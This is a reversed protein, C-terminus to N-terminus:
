ARIKLANLLGHKQVHLCPIPLCTDQSWDWYPLGLNTDALWPELLEELQVMYLRHWPLFDPSPMSVNHPCCGWIKTPCPRSSCALRSRPDGCTKGDGYGHFSAIDQFNVWPSKSGIANRLATQLKHEEYPTLSNVNKRIWIKKCRPAQLPPSTVPAQLPPSPPVLGDEGGIISGIIAIIHELINQSSTFNILLILFVAYRM